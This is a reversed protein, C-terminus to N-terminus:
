APRAPPAPAAASPDLAADISVERSGRASDRAPGPLGAAIEGVQAELDGVTASSLLTDGVAVGFEAEMAMALEVLDLSALGLDEVLRADPGVREPRTKAIRAVLTRLHFSGGPKP